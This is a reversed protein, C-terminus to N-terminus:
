KRLNDSTVWLTTLDILTTNLVTNSIARWLVPSRIPIEPKAVKCEMECSVALSNKSCELTVFEVEVPALGLLSTFNRQVYGQLSFRAEEIALPFARGLAIFPLERLPAYNSHFALGHVMDSNDAFERFPTTLYATFQAGRSVELAADHTANEFSVGSVMLLEDRRAAAQSSILLERGLDRGKQNILVSGLDSLSLAPLLTSIIQDAVLLPAGNQDEFRIQATFEHRYSRSFFIKKSSRRAEIVQSSKIYTQGEFSCDNLDSM